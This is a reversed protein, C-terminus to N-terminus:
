PLQRPWHRNTTSVHKDIVSNTFNWSTNPVCVMERKTPVHGSSYEWVQNNRRSRVAIYIDVPCDRGLQHAKLFLTKRRKSLM